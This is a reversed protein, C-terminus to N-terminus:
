LLSTCQRGKSPLFTVLGLRAHPAQSGSAIPKRVYSVLQYSLKYQLVGPLRLVTGSTANQFARIDNVTLSISSSHLM